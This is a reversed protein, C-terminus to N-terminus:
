RRTWMGSQTYFFCNPEMQALLVSPKFLFIAGETALPRDCMLRPPLSPPNEAFRAAVKHVRRAFRRAMKFYGYGSQLETPKM